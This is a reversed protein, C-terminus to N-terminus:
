DEKYRKYRACYRTGLETFSSPLSELLKLAIYRVVTKKCAPNRVEPSHAERYLLAAFCM